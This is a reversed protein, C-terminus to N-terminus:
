GAVLEAGRTEREPAVVAVLKKAVKETVTCVYSCVCITALLFLIMYFMARYRVKKQIFISLCM